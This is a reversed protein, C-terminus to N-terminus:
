ANLLGGWESDRYKPKKFLSIIKERIEEIDKTDLPKANKYFGTERQPFYLADGYKQKKAGKARGYVHIHLYPGEPKFVSWNGNDQYNIRGIDVGRKRMAYEMAEGVIITLGILEIAKKSSLSQRNSVRKKPIIVIHGGDERSVHPSDPAKVLFNETEYILTM